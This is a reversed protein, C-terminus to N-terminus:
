QLNEESRGDGITIPSISISCVFFELPNLTTKNSSLLAIFSCNILFGEEIKM